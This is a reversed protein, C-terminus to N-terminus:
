IVVQMPVLVTGKRELVIGLASCTSLFHQAFTWLHTWRQGSSVTGLPCTVESGEVGGRTSVPKGPVPLRGLGKKRGRLQPFAGKKQAGVESMEPTVFPTRAAMLFGPNSLSAAEESCWAGRGPPVPPVPLTGM